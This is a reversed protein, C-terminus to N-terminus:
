EAKLFWGKATEDTKFFNLLLYAVKRAGAPSPHTGDPQVDEPMWFLGDARGRPGDTWLYPGWGVWVSGEPQPTKIRDEILWKVTFDEHNM